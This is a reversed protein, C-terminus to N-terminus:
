PQDRLSELLGSVYDNAIKRRVEDPVVPASSRLGRRRRARTQAAQPPAQSVNAAVAQAVLEILRGSAPLELRKILRVLAPKAVNGHLDEREAELRALSAEPVDIDESLRALDLEYEHRRGQLVEGFTDAAYLIRWPETFWRVQEAEADRFRHRPDDEGVLPPGQRLGEPLPAGRMFCSFTRTLSEIWADDLRAVQEMLQERLVRAHNWVELIAPYPLVADDLFLDWDGALEPQDSVPVILAEYDAIELIAAVILQGEEDGWIAHVAGPAPDAKVDAYVSHPWAVEPVEDSRVPDPPTTDAEWAARVSRCRACDAVHAALQPALISASTLEYISPCTTM